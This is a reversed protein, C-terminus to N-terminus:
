AREILAAIAAEARELHEQRVLLHDRNYGCVALLPVGAGALAGSLLAMFGVLDPPLDVEFSIAHFGPEVEARPFAPSIQRWDSDDLVLTVVEPEVILQWFRGSLGGVLRLAVPQERPDIGVLVLREPRVRWRMTRVIGALRPDASYEAMIEGGRESSM